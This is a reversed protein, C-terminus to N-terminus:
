RRRWQPSPKRLWAPRYRGFCHFPRPPFGAPAKAIEPGSAETWGVETWGAPSPTACRPPSATSSPRLGGAHRSAGAPAMRLRSAAAARQLVVAEAPFREAAASRPRRPTTCSSCASAAWGAGAAAASGAAPGGAGCGAGARDGPLRGAAAHGPAACAARLPPGPDRPRPPAPPSATRRGIRAPITTGSRAAMRGGCCGGAARRPSPMSPPVAPCLRGLGGGAGGPAGAPSPRRPRLPEDGGDGTAAASVGAPRCTGPCATCASRYCRCRALGTLGPRNASYRGRMPAASRRRRKADRRAAADGALGRLLARPLAPPIGIPM